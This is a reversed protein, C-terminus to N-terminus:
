GATFCEPGVVVNDFAPAIVRSQSEHRNTASTQQKYSLQLERLAWQKMNDNETNKWQREKEFQWFIYIYFFTVLFLSILQTTNVTIQQLQANWGPVGAELLM